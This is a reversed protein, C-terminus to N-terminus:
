VTGNYEQIWRIREGGTAKRVHDNKILVFKNKSKRTYFIAVNRRCDEM